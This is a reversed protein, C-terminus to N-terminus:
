DAAAADVLTGHGAFVAASGSGHVQRYWASAYTPVRACLPLCVRVSNHIGGLSLMGGACLRTGEGHDFRLVSPTGDKPALDKAKRLFSSETDEPDQLRARYPATCVRCGDVSVPGSHWTNAFGLVPAAHPRVSAAVRRRGVAPSWVRQM